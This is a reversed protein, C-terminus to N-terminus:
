TIGDYKERPKLTNKTRKFLIKNKLRSIKYFGKM